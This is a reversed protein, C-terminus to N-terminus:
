DGDGDAEVPVDAMMVNLLELTRGAMKTENTYHIQRMIYPLVQMPSILEIWNEEGRGLLCIGKLPVAVNKQWSEKGAMAHGYVWVGSEDVRIFPKDGNIIEANEFCKKWLAVHTSKGTGSPATFMYGLGDAAVVAGYMLFCNYEPLQTSIKRLLALIEM